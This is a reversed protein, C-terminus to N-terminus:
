IRCFICIYLIYFLVAFDIAPVYPFTVFDYCKITLTFAKPCKTASSSLRKILAVMLKTDEVSEPITLECSVMILILILAGRQGM